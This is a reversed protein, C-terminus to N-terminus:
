RRTAPPKQRQRRRRHRAVAWFELPAITFSLLFCLWFFGMSGAALFVVALIFLAADLRVLWRAM